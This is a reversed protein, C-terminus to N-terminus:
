LGNAMRMAGMESGNITVKMMKTNMKLAKSKITNRTIKV